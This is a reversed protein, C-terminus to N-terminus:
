RAFAKDDPNGGSQIYALLDLLEDRNLGNILGVPMMSVPYPERSKIDSTKVPTLIEPALPVTMVSLTDRDEAVVRGIVLSGDKLEIQDTGYQDSIVKSPEVINELLDRLTYRNGAGSIDPGINGGEGNFHHCRICLTSSFMAKGQEFNRDKLNGEALAVADDTTYNRGPGKPMVLDAPPAPPAQKSLEDLAAHEAEPVFNALAQTRINDLYGTFSNGGHWRHTRPFWAFFSHRLEPTWGVRANRLAYAYAIAQRNPASDHMNNIANAYRANRALLSEAPSGAGADPTTDLLPVTKAVITKSDLFTLLPVLERNM